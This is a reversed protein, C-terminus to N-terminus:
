FPEFHLYCRVNKYDHEDDDNVTIVRIFREIISNDYGEPVYPVWEMNGTNIFSPFNSDFSTYARPSLNWEDNQLVSAYETKASKTSIKVKLNSINDTLKDTKNKFSDSILTAQSKLKNIFNDFM